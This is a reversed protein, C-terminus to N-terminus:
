GPPEQPAPGAPLLGAHSYRPWIHHVVEAATTWRDSDRKLAWYAEGIEKRCQSGGFVTDHWLLSVGGWGFGRVTELITRAAELTAGGARSGHPLSVDMVVLPLELLPYATETAFCYPPYAFSAGDRFGPHGSYGITCDYRAGAKSLEDLLRARNGYRLWHQRSGIVTHGTARLLRFEEQLRGPSALSTYSGHLGIEGGRAVVERLMEGTRSDSIRYNPDRRHARRVVFNCTSRIGLAAERELMGWLDGRNRDRRLSQRGGKLLISLALPLDRDVVAAIGANKIVRHLCSRVGFPLFDVDHTAALVVGPVQTWPSLPEAPWAAGAASRLQENLLRMAAAAYPFTPDLAYRGHLTEAFSVRGAADLETVSYEHAGSIWEFVEALWDPRSSSADWHFCPMRGGPPSFVSAAEGCDRFDPPPCPAEIARPRYGAALAVNRGTGGDTGYRLTLAEGTSVASFGYVACFVRFAYEIRKRVVEPVSDAFALRLRHPTQVDYREKKWPPRVAELVRFRAADPEVVASDV